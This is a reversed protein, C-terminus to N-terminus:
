CIDNRVPRQARHPVQEEALRRIKVHPVSVGTRRRQGQNRDQDPLALREATGIRGTMGLFRLRECLARSGVFLRGKAQRTSGVCNTRRDVGKMGNGVPDLGQPPDMRVQAFRFKMRRVVLFDCPICCM